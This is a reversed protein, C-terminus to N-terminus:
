PIFLNLFSIFFHLYPLLISHIETKSVSSNPLDKEFIEKDQNNICHCQNLISESLFFLNNIENYIDHLATSLINKYNEM